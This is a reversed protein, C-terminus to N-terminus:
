MVGLHLVAKRQRNTGQMKKTFPRGTDEKWNMPPSHILDLNTRGRKTQKIKAYSHDSVRNKKSQNKTKSKSKASLKTQTKKGKMFKTNNARSDGEPAFVKKARGLRGSNEVKGPTGGWGRGRIVIPL